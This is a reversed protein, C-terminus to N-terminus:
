ILTQFYQRMRERMAEDPLRGYGARMNDVVHHPKNTETATCTVIPNSLVYKLAFQAWSECDFEAAWEPLEKGATVSFYAGDNEGLKFSEISIVGMGMDAALPLIRDEVANLSISYAPMIFDPKKDKMFQELVENGIKLSAESAGIYRVKGEAKAKQLVPWTREADRMNHLLMLDLPRKDLNAITKDLHEAAAEAGNVTIKGVLFLDDQIGMERIMGGLVPPDPRFFAPTDIVRGGMDYMTQVLTKPLEDTEDEPTTYFVDPSGLAAVPLSENTGPITRTRMSEQAFSTAPLATAAAVATSQALFKRRSIPPLRTM